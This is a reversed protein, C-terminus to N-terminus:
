SAAAPLGCYLSFFGRVSLSLFKMGGRYRPVAEVDDGVDDEIANCKEGHGDFRYLELMHRRRVSDVESEEAIHFVGGEQVLLEERAVGLEFIGKDVSRRYTSVSRQQMTRQM